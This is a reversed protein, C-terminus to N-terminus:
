GEFCGSSCWYACGTKGRQVAKRGLKPAVQNSAVFLHGVLQCKSCFNPVWEAYYAQTFVRGDEDEVLVETPLPKSVDIEVLIRAYQM